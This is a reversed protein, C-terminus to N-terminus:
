VGDQQFYNFVVRENEEPTDYSYGGVILGGHPTKWKALRRCESLVQAPTGHTLTSQSDVSTLFAVKGAYRAAVDEYGCTGSQYPSILDMGAEIFDGMLNTVRGCSHLWYDMGNAHVADTIRKYPKAFFQRWMAPSIMVDQQTGWDDFMYLADLEGKEPALEEMYAVWFDACLKLMYHVIEPREVLDVFINETGRFQQIREWIGFATAIFRYKTRQEPTLNKLAVRVKEAYLKPDPARLKAVDEIREAPHQKPVGITPFDPYSVWTIGWPDTDHEDKVYFDYVDVTDDWGFRGFYLGVRPPDQFHICRKIVERPSMPVTSPNM